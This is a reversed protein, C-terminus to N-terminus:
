TGRIEEIVKMKAAIMQPHNLNMLGRLQHALHDERGSLAGDSYIIRWVEELVEIKEDVSLGENLARTFQHTDTATAQVGIAHELLEQAADDDLGFRAQLVDLIHRREEDTFDDDARAAEVMLACVALPIKHRPPPQSEDRPAALSELIRRLM